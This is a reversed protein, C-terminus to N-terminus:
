SHENIIVQDNIDCMNYTGRNNVGCSDIGLEKVLVEILFGKCIFAVNGNAKGFPVVFQDYIHQLSNKIFTTNQSSIGTPHNNNKRTKVTTVRNDVLENLKSKGDLLAADPIGHNQSWVSVCVEIDSNNERSQDFDLKKSEFYKPGKSFLKRLKKCM